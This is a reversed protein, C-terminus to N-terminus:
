VDEEMAEEDIVYLFVRESLTDWNVVQSDGSLDLPLLPYAPSRSDQIDGFLPVGYVMKVGVALVENDLELDVTFFDHEANYHVEFTFTEEDIEIDFRYPILEKEIDVYNM